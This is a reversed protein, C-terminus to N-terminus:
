CHIRSGSHTNVRTCAEAGEAHVVDDFGHVRGLHRGACLLGALRSLCVTREQYTLSWLPCGGEIKPLMIGFTISGPTLVAAAFYFLTCGIIVGWHHTESFRVKTADLGLNARAPLYFHAIGLWGVATLLVFIWNRWLGFKPSGLRGPDQM